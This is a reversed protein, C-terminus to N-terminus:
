DNEGGKGEGSPATLAADVLANVRQWTKLPEPAFGDSFAGSMWRYLDRAEILAERLRGQDAELAKIKEQCSAHDTYELIAALHAELQEVEEALALLQTNFANAGCTCPMTGIVGILARCSGHPEQHERRLARLRTALDSM